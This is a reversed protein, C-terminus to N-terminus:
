SDFHGLSAIMQCCSLQVLYREDLSAVCHDSQFNGLSSNSRPCRWQVDQIGPGFKKKNQPHTMNMQSLRSQKSKWMM